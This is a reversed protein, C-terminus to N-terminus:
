CAALRFVPQGTMRDIDPKDALLDVHLKQIGTENPMVHLLIQNNQNEIRYDIARGSTWDGAFKLNGPNSAIIEFVKEEGIFLEDTAPKFGVSTKTCPYLRISEYGTTETTTYHIQLKLFQTQTLNKFRIKCHWAEGYLLLSDVIEYDGSPILHLDMGASAAEPILTIEAIENENDYYFYLIRSGDILVQHNESTYTQSDTRIELRRFISELTTQAPLLTPIFFLLAHLLRINM